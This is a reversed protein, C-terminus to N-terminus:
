YGMLGNYNIAFSPSADDDTDDDKVIRQFFGLDLFLMNIKIEGHMNVYTYANEPTHHMEELATNIDELDTPNIGTKGKQKQRFEVRYLLVNNSNLEAMRPLIDKGNDACLKIFMFLMLYEKYGFKIMSAVSKNTEKSGNLGEGLSAKNGGLKGNIYQNTTNEIGSRIKDGAKDALEDTKQKVQANIKNKFETIDDNVADKIKGALDESVLNNVKKSITQKFENMKSAIFSNLTQPEGIRELIANEVSEKIINKVKGKTDTNVVKKAIENDPTYDDIATYVAEFAKSVMEKIEAQAMIQTDNIKNMDIQYYETYMLGNLTTYLTTEATAFLEDLSDRIKQETVTQITSTLETVKDDAIKGGEDIMNQIIESVDRIGSGALDALQNAAENAAAQVGNQFSLMWTDKTKVVAIDLGADIMSLDLAAEAAAFALQTIIMVVQYPVIGGTAAQVAMGAARAINRVETNTFAYICDFGFRTAYISAKACTVNSGAKPCGYLMYEIEAGYLYNHKSSIDYNSQTKGYIRNKDFKNKVEGPSGPAVPINNEKVITDQVLTNYSYNEFIYDLIYANDRVKKAAEGTANLIDSIGGISKGLGEQQDTVAQSPDDNGDKKGIKLDKKNNETGKGELEKQGSYTYGYPSAGDGSSSSKKGTETSYKEMLIDYDAKQDKDSQSASKGEDEPYTNDLYILFPIPLKDKILFRYLNEKGVGLAECEDYHLSFEDSKQAKDTYSFDNGAAEVTVIDKSKINKLNKKAATLLKDSNDINGIKTGAYVFTDARDLYTLFESYIDYISQTYDRLKQIQELDYESEAQKMDETNQMSFTDKGNNKEYETNANSWAAKANKYNQASTKLKDLGELVNKLDAVLDSINNRIGNYQKHIEKVETTVVNKATEIYLPYNNVDIVYRSTFPKYQELLEHHKKVIAAQENVLKNYKAVADDRKAKAVAANKEAKKIKGDIEIIDLINKNYDNVRVANIYLYNLANYETTGKTLGSNNAFADEYAFLTKYYQATETTGEFEGGKNADYALANLKENKSYYTHVIANFAEAYENRIGKRKDSTNTYSNEYVKSVMEKWTIEEFNYGENKNETNQRYTKNDNNIRDILTQNNRAKNNKGTGIIKKIEEPGATTSYKKNENYTEQEGTIIDWQKGIEGSGNNGSMNIFTEYYKQLKVLKELTGASDRYKVAASDDNNLYKEYKIFENIPKDEVNGNGGNATKFTKKETNICDTPLFNTSTYKKVYTKTEAKNLEGYGKEGEYNEKAKALSDAGDASPNIGKGSYRVTNVGQNWVPTKTMNGKDDFQVTSLSLNNGTYIFQFDSKQDSLYINNPIFHMSAPAYNFFPAQLLFVLAIKHLRLYNQPHSSIGWSERYKLLHTEYAEPKVPYGDDSSDRGKIYKKLDLTDGNMNSFDKDFYRIAQITTNGDKAVPQSLQQMNTQAQIVTEQQEVSGFSSLSDFFSMGVNIPARYKMYDVIQKRLVNSNSLNSGEAKEINFDPSFEMKLFNSINIEGNEDTKFLNHYDEMLSKVYDPADEESVVGYGTLTQEFYKQVNKKWTDMDEEQSMAFLGYVDKLITDYDALASNMALDGASSVMSRAMNLRATDVVVAALTLMPTLIIVLIVSISGQIGKTIKNKM